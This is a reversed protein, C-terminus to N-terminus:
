LAEQQDTDSEPATDSESATDSEPATDRGTFPHISLLEFDAGREPEIFLAISRLLVDRPADAFHAALAEDVAGERAPPIRDTLTLHFRFQDFVYPYGWQEFLERQRPPLEEPRRRRRDDADPAARFEDFSRVADDALADIGSTDGSVRLARFGGLREPRLGRLVLSARAAAFADAADRLQAETRGEAMRFPAKLTGHFGYRRADVTLDRFSENAYWAEVTRRVAVASPDDNTGLAGPLAYVAYRTM